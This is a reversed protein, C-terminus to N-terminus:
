ADYLEGDVLSYDGEAYDDDTFGRLRSASTVSYVVQEDVEALEHVANLKNAMNEAFDEDFDYGEIWFESYKGKVDLITGIIVFIDV